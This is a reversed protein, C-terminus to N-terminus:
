HKIYSVDSVNKDWCARCDMCKNGQKSSPCVWGNTIKTDTIVTSSHKHFKHPLGNIMTASIRVILNDPFEGFKEKYEKVISVERTPLWHTVTPTNKVVKVIKCLHQLSQLDGSDHWRFYSVKKGYWNILWSMAGIWNSNNNMLDMRKYLAKQVSPFVYMGKLAYCGHCVSGEVERLKSGVNCEKAPLNYSYSPMKSPKSLGGVEILATKVNYM